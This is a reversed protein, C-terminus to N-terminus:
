ITRHEITRYDMLYTRNQLNYYFLPNNGKCLVGTLESITVSGPSPFRFDNHVQLEKFHIIWNLVVDFM